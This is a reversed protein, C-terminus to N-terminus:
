GAENSRAAGFSVEDAVTCDDGIALLDPTTVSVNSIEVFRGLKAGLARYWPKLFLTAHLPGAIDVSLALLQEVLWNRVYFGGHVPYRGPRARAILLWKLLVVMAILCIIFSAGVLPAALYFLIQGPNLRILIAVGPVFAFLEVLLLTCVLVSYLATLATRRILGPAPPPDPESAAPFVRRPPSGAWTQGAPICTGSQLLSLDELRAGHEMVTNPALVSHTGVFGRDGVSVPGIVLHGDEITYGLLSAGEDISAGAGISIVDFAALLDTAIHVDGAVKAGFLRYVFPLLPTGGLRALPISRVLTQIFWWRLFYWGWLPYQGPQVRGLLTWKACVAILILAPFLAIGGAAAWAISDLM